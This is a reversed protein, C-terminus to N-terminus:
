MERGITLYLRKRESESSQDHHYRKSNPHRGPRSNSDGSNLSPGGRTTTRCRNPSSNSSRKCPDRHVRILSVPSPLLPIIVNARKRRIALETSRVSSLQTGMQYATAGRAPTKPGQLRWTCHSPALSRDGSPSPPSNLPLV